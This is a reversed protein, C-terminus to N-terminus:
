EETLTHKLKLYSFDWVKSFAWSIALFHHVAHTGAAPREQTTVQWLKHVHQFTATVYINTTNRQEM